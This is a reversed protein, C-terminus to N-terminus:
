EMDDDKTACHNLVVPYYGNQMAVGCVEKVYPEESCGTVGPIIFMIKKKSNGQHASLDASLAKNVVCYDILLNIETTCIFM